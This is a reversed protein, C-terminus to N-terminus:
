MFCTHLKTSRSDNKLLEAENRKKKSTYFDAENRM